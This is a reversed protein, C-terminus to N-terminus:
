FNIAVSFAALFFIVFSIIEFSFSSTFCFIGTELVVLVGLM